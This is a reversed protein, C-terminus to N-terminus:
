SNFYDSIRVRVKKSVMNIQGTATQITKTIKWPFARWYKHDTGISTANLLYWNKGNDPSIDISVGSITEDADWQVLLTAYDDIFHVLVNYHGNPIKNFNYSHNRNRVTKYMAIPGELPKGLLEANRSWAYNSGNTVYAGDNEWGSIVAGGNGCNIELHLPPTKLVNIVAGASIAGAKATVTYTAEVSGAKFIGSSSITASSPSVSWTVVPQPSMANANTIIFETGSKAVNVSLWTQSNSATVSSLTGIPTTVTITKSVPNTGGFSATFNLSKTSLSISPKQPKVGVWVEPYYDAVSNTTLRIWKEFGSYNSKFKGVYAEALESGSNSKYGGTLVMYRADNSAFKPHYLEDELTGDPLNGPTIMVADYVKTKHKFMWIRDHKGGDFRLNFWYGSNDPAVSSWCGSTIETEVGNTVLAGNEVFFGKSWPLFGVGIEGDENVQYWPEGKVEWKNWLIKDQTSDEILYRIIYGMGTNWNAGTRTHVIVWEKGTTPDEKVGAFTPFILATVLVVPFCNKM